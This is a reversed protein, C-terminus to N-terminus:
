VAISQPHDNRIVLVLKQEKFQGCTEELEMTPRMRIATMNGQADLTPFVAPPLWKCVVNVVRGLGNRVPEGHLCDRCFNSM